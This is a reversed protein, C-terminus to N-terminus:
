VSGYMLHGDAGFHNNRGEITLSRLPRKKFAAGVAATFCQNLGLTERLIVLPDQGSCRGNRRCWHECGSEVVCACIGGSVNGGAFYGCKAGSHKGGTIKLVPDSIVDEIIWPLAM